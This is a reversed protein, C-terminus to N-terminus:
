WRPYGKRERNSAKVREQEEREQRRSEKEKTRIIAAWEEWEKGVEALVNSMVTASAMLGHGETELVRLECRKMANSLWRVNELPVRNDNAGHHVVVSRTIDTYRFGIPRRRELCIVLDVAPNANLTALSWTRHTLTTNYLKERAHPTMVRRSATPAISIPPPSLTQSRLAVGLTPSLPPSHLHMTTQYCSVARPKRPSAEPTPLTSSSDPMNAAPWADAEEFMSDDLALDLASARDKKRQKRSAPEISASTASLFRSNAAKMFSAPLFSLIKHSTPLNVAKAQGDQSAALQSPPIWPGLLHIRGRVYQPMKLATALAYIAGASHALLSFKEIGLSSCIVAVDDVWALPTNREDPMSTTEGVGPRDPTIIRLKQAKAIDDYFSTVYRTLGMGVCCIVVFGEPDGVESFAITRGTRPHRIKQTLRPSALFAEVEDAVAKADDPVNRQISSSRKISDSLRKRHKRTSSLSPTTSTSFSLNRKLDAPQENIEIPTLPGNEAAELFAPMAALDNGDLRASLNPPEELEPTDLVKSHWSNRASSTRRVPSPNALSMRNAAKESRRAEKRWENHRKERAQQLERIRQVTTDNEEILDEDINLSKLDKSSTSARKMGNRLSSRRSPILNENLDARTSPSLSSLTRSDSQANDFDTSLKRLTVFASFRRPDRDTEASETEASETEVPGPMADSDLSADRAKHPAPEADPTASYQEGLRSSFVMKFPSKTRSVKSNVSLPLSKVSENGPSYIDVASDFSQPSQLDRRPKATKLTLQSKKSFKTFPRAESGSTKPRSTSKPDFTTTYGAVPPPCFDGPVTKGNRYFTNHFSPALAIRNIIDEADEEGGIKKLSKKKGAVPPKATETISTLSTILSSLAENDSLAPVITSSYFTASWSASRQRRHTQRLEKSARARTTTFTTGTEGDDDDAFSHM